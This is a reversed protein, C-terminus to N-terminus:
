TAALRNMGLIRASGPYQLGCLKAEYVRIAQPHSPCIDSAVVFAYASTMQLHSGLRQGIKLDIAICDGLGPLLVCPHHAEKAGEIEITINREVSAGNLLISLREPWRWM